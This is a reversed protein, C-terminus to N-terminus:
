PDVGPHKIEGGTPDRLVGLLAASIGAGLEGVGGGGVAAEVVAVAAWGGEGWAGGVGM